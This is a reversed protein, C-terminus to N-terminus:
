EFLLVAGHAGVAIVGYGVAVSYGFNYWNALNLNTLTEIYAWTGSNYVYANGASSDETIAGVAIVGYGVAVSYGFRGGSQPNQSELTYEITETGLDYVYAKGSDYSFTEQSAGIVIKGDGVAISCGFHGFREINLSTLTDPTLELDSSDYVYVRGAADRTSLGDLVDEYPAGVAIVGEGIAVSWGFRGLIEPNESTLSAISSLDGADYLYVRGAGTSTYTESPSGVAILGDNVAVSSGYGQASTSSVPNDSTLTAILDRTAADYVYVNGAYAVTDSTEMVAGVAIVGEGVAVSYGFYGNTEPNPSSLEDLFEGDTASYVYARGERPYNTTSEYPAGVAIVGEGIAVSFGFYGDNTEENPNTLFEPLMDGETGYLYVNYVDTATYEVAKRTYASATVNNVLPDPDTELVTYNDTFVWTEGKELKDNARRGSESLKIAAGTLNGEVEVNFLTVRGTNTVEFTYTVMDGVRVNIKDTTTTVSIEPIPRADALPLIPSVMSICLLCIVVTIGLKNEIKM